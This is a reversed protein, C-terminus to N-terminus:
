RRSLLEAGELSTVCPTLRHELIEEVESRLSPSLIVIPLSIGASRLEIGEHLTAVGLMTVGAEAAARAIEIAGHGYADAKVVLLIACGPGIAGQIAAINRTFRDLDVEAWTPFEMM